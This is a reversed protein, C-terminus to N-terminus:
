KNQKGIESNEVKNKQHKLAKIGAMFTSISGRILDRIGAYFIIFLVGFFTLTEKIFWRIEGM